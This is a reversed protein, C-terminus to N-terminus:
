ILRKNKQKAKGRRKLVTNLVALDLDCHFIGLLLHVFNQNQIQPNLTQYLYTLFRVASFLKGIKNKKKM